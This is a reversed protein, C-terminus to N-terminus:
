KRRRGGARGQRAQRRARRSRSPPPVYFPSQPDPEPDLSGGLALYLQLLIESRRFREAPTLRSWALVDPDIGEDDMATM